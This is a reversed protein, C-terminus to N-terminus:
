LENIFEKWSSQSNAFNILEEIATQINNYNIILDYKQIKDISYKYMPDYYETMLYQIVYQYNKEKINDVLLNVTSEGLRKRLKYISEIIRKEDVLSFDNNVYESIINSVRNSINTNILIHYGKEMGEFLFDPIIVNGIRKSESEIFIYNYSNNFQKLTELLSTEFKKQSSSPESFQINGFVSGSNNALGEIDITSYKKEKLIRLIKTKGTGTHGHLVIFKYKNNYHSLAEIVYKRYSKYGGILFYLNLGMIDLVRAVSNSRMGGRYCFIVVNKGNTKLDNIKKYINPLRKSSYELGVEKAKEKDIQKYLYGIYAREEDDLIPINISGPITDEQYESPSRVDVYVLNKLAFSEELTIERILLIAGVKLM